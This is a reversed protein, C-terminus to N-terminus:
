MSVVVNKRDPTTRMITGPLNKRADHPVSVIGMNIFSQVSKMPITISVPSQYAPAPASTSTSTASASTSTSASATSTSPTGQKTAVPASKTVPTSAAAPSTSAPKAPTTIAPTVPRSGQAQAAAAHTLVTERMGGRGRGKPRGRARPLLESDDGGAGTPTFPTVPTAPASTRIPTHSIQPTQPTQPAVPRSVVAPTTPKPRYTAAAESMPPLNHAARSENAARVSAAFASAAADAKEKERRASEIVDHQAKATRLQSQVIALEQRLVHTSSQILSVLPPLPSPHQLILKAQDM